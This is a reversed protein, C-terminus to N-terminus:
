SLKSLMCIVVFCLEIEVLGIDIVTRFYGSFVLMCPAMCSSCLLVGVVSCRSIRVYYVPCYELSLSWPDCWMSAYVM